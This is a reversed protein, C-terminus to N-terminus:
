IRMVLPPDYFMSGRTNTGGFVLHFSFIIVFMVNNMVMYLLTKHSQYYKVLYEGVNMNFTPINWM